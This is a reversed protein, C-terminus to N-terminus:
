SRVFTLLFRHLSKSLHEWSLISKTLKYANNGMKRTLATEDLLKLCSDVLEGVNSPEILFGTDGDVVQETLGGVRTAVVPLSFGYATAIVGSQTADIYPLVVFAARRFYTEVDDNAVWQNSIELQSNPIANILQQYQSLDGSGVLLLKTAPRRQAIIQFAKLLVEIGKYKSIRGFFLITKANDSDSNNNDGYNNAYFSFEGHPIVAIREDSFGQKRVIDKFIESLLIIGSSQKISLKMIIKVFVNEEGIHLKPDHLTLIHPKGALIYQIVPTWIYGMPHYVVDAKFENVWDRIKIFKKFKLTSIILSLYDHYTPVEKLTVGSARWEMINEAESSVIAFLENNQKLLAKSMELAYHTGGGRRGLFIVAVRM